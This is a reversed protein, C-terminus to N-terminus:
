GITCASSKKWSAAPRRWRRRAGSARPGAPSPAPAVLATNKRIRFTNGHFLSHRWAAPLPIGRELDAATAHLIYHQEPAAFPLGQIYDEVDGIEMGKELIGYKDMMEVSIDAEEHASGPEALVM